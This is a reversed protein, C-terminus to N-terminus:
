LLGQTVKVPSLLVKEFLFFAIGPEPLFPVMGLGIPRIPCFQCSFIKIQGFHAIYLDPLGHVYPPDMM